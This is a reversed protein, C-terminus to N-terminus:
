ILDSSARRKPWAAATRTSPRPSFSRPSGACEPCAAVRGEVGADMYINLPAGTFLVEEPEVWADAPIVLIDAGLRDEAGRMGYSVGLNLLYLALLIGTSVAVALLISISQVRRRTLSHWLIKYM